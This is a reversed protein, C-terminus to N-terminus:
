GCWVGAPCSAPTLACGARVLCVHKNEPPQSSGELGPCVRRAGVGEEWSFFLEKLRSDAPGRSFLHEPQTAPSRPDWEGRPCSSPGQHVM